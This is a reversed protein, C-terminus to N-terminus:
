GCVAQVFRWAGPSLCVVAGGAAVGQPFVCAWVVPWVAFCIAGSDLFRALKADAEAANKASPYEGALLRGNLPRAFSLNAFSIQYADATPLNPIM